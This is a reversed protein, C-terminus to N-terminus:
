LYQVTNNKFERKGGRHGTLYHGILTIFITRNLAKTSQGTRKFNREDVVFSHLQRSTYQWPQHAGIAHLTNTSNSRSLGVYYQCTATPAQGPRILAGDGSWSQSKRDRVGRGEDGV